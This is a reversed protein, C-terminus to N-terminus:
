FLTLLECLSPSILATILSIKQRGISTTKTTELSKQRTLCLWFFPLPSSFPTSFNELPQCNRVCFNPIKQYLQFLTKPQFHLRSFNLIKALFDKKVGFILNKRAKKPPPPKGSPRLAM